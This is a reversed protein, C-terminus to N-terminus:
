LRPAQILAAPQVQELVGLWQRMHTSPFLDREIARFGNLAPKATNVLASIGGFIGWTLLDTLVSWHTESCSVPRSFLSKAEKYSQRRTVCYKDFSDIM